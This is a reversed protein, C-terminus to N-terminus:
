AGIRQMMFEPAAKFYVSASLAGGSAQYAVLEVRDTASLDYITSVLLLATKGTLKDQAAQAIIDVGNLLLWIFRDGAGGSSIYVQGVIAYKGSTQCTLRSNNTVNDHISDTDYREANFALIVVTADPLNQHLSHYVRAGEHYLYPFIYVLYDILRIPEDAADPFPLNRIRNSAMNIDGQMTGGQLPLYIGPNPRLCQSQWYAFGTMHKVSGLSEWERKEAASLTHWLAACKQYMHRWSLQAPSKADEPVPAKEAVDIKRRRTFTINGLKGRALFSLLPNKLKVM